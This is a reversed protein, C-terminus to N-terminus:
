PSLHNWHPQLPFCGDLQVYHLRNQILVHSTGDQLTIRASYKASCSFFLSMGVPSLWSDVLSLFFQIQQMLTRWLYLFLAVSSIWPNGHSCSHVDCCQSSTEVICVCVCVCLCAGYKLPKRLQNVPASSLLAQDGWAASARWTCGKWYLCLQCLM